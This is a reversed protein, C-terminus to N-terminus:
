RNVGVHAVATAAMPRTPYDTLNRIYMDRLNMFVYQYTGEDGHRPKGFWLGHYGMHDVLEALEAGDFRYHGSKVSKVIRGNTDLLRKVQLGLSKLFANAKAYDGLEFNRQRLRRRYRMDFMALLDDVSGRLGDRHCLQLDGGKHLTEVAVDRHAEFSRRASEFEPALLLYPWDTPLVTTESARWELRKSSDSSRDSLWLSALHHASVPVTHESQLGAVAASTANDRLRQQYVELLLWNMVKNPTEKALSHYLQQVRKATLDHQRALRVSMPPHLQRRYDRNKLRALFYTDIQQLYNDLEQKYASAHHERALATGVRLNAMSDLFNAEAHVNASYATAAAPIYVPRSAWPGGRGFFSGSQGHCPAAAALLVGTVLLSAIWSQRAYKSM